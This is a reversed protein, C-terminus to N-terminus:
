RKRAACWATYFDAISGYRDDPTELCARTVVARLADSGRFSAPALTGDSLLVAATRGMTYVNTREDIIAGKVFEEPAMFRSSGFMRGVPNVFPGRHYMDLDVVHLHDTTFDYILCGDYFDVAIWGSRVLHVHLDVIVDLVHLIREVPLKKFRQYASQPYKRAERNAHLLEGPVWDYVLLPGEPSKIVRHLSPLAPHDCSRALAVANELCVVRQVHSLFPTADGPVGATKVFYREGDLNVGYSINGSDQSRVDFLAFVGGTNQLYLQPPEDIIDVDLLPLVM